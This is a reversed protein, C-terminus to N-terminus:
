SHHFDTSTLGLHVGVLTIEMDAAHTDSMTMTEAANTTNVLVQTNGGIELYAVSHANLTLNGIGTINGQFQPVGNATGIGAITTFDIKDIGHRFDTITDAAAPTSDAVAKYAFTVKGSGATLMDAGAGGIVTDNGGHANIIDNGVSGTLRAATTGGLIAKSTGHLVNGNSSYENLGFSHVTNSAASTAFTWNGNADTTTYGIWNNGDYFEVIDGAAVGSGSLTVTDNGPLMGTFVPAVPHVPQAQLTFTLSASGTNGAADTESAIVTHAGDALGSPTFSWAGTADATATDAIASGDIAFHVVAGADGTGTLAPSAATTGGGALHETLLPATTDLTFSLSASGTSGALDTETAVITHAGDALGTPTYSWVGNADATATAAIATGDVTFHVIAGADGSGTLSANSTVKDSNSIGTDNVLGETVHPAMTDLTFTLSATGTGAANTESAVITHTGDALGTPTYSWTGNTNATATASVANGDVTFHVISNPSATGSLTPNSTIRDTSSAGTDVALRETVVPTTATSLTFSLSASGINGALDTETAVITHPGDALGTPTYSWAGTADATATAAIPTGDVTFHVTANAEGTGMLAANFTTVGGNVLKETVAPATTDLTFTMSATGTGAANTESAVITHVGDALGTPTYSWTGNADATATAPIASGDVTFHVTAGADATGTLAPSSTIRDIPSLGTDSALGETVVPTTTATTTTLGIVPSGGTVVINPGAVINGSGAIAVTGNGQINALVTPNAGTGYYEGSDSTLTIQGGSLYGAVATTQPGYTSFTSDTFNAPGQVIAGAPQNNEFGSGQVLTIGSSADLGPGNNEVFYAGKVVMDHTGNALIMGAGGNLRFGGGEWELGSAVGGAPSNAFRAGGQLNGNMWSNVVLGHSVNGIVDLGIGDVHEISVNNISLNSIARDTGDAVIKVGDGSSGNISFNSLTLSSLAVGPGVIIEIVPGGNGIESVIKAGGLDIGFAAQNPNTVNIVIPATVTYTSDTLHAVYGGTLAGKLAAELAGTGTSTDVPAATAATVPPLATLAVGQSSVSIHALDGDGAPSVSVNSGTVLTGTDGTAFVNGAGQLNALVTPDPGAGTYTSTNGILTANGQLYGSIATTQAGSSIFNDNNFNGFGEFWIGYHHNDEFQCSTVATIGTGASIGAGGNHAFTVSDISMDRAGNDLTLGDGGNGELSGGFWRLASAQGGNESHAFYAGGVGNNTMSSNSILGESVSGLVDLGYGGVHNVTVNNINWNYAWRDNGDAVIKIGDGEFGNGQITFNSLTLYRLDVGPGVDIEIVPAGNTIRSFITAGGLDIGLPGQITSDIHIVISSTVTFNVGTSHAMYGGAIAAGLISGLDSAIPSSATTTSPPVPIADQLLVTTAGTIDTSAISMATM